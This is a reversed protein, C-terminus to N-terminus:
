IQFPLLILLSFAPYSYVYIDSIERFIGHIDISVRYIKTMCIYAVLYSKFFESIFRPDQPACLDLCLSHDTKRLAETVASVVITLADVLNGAHSQKRVRRLWSFGNRLGSRIIWPTSFSSYLSHHLPKCQITIIGFLGSERGSKDVSSM